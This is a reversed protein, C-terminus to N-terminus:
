SIGTGSMKRSPEALTMHVQELELGTTHDPSV